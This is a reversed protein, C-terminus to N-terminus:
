FRKNEKSKNIEEFENYKTNIVDGYLYLKGKNRYQDIERKVNDDSQIIQLIKNIVREDVPYVIENFQDSPVKQRGKESVPIATKVSTNISNVGVM